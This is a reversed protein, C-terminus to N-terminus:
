LTGSPAGISSAHLDSEHSDQQEREQDRRAGVSLKADLFGSRALLEM